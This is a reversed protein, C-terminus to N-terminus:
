RVTIDAPKPHVVAGRIEVLEHVEPVTLHLGEIYHLWILALLIPQWTRKSSHAEAHHDLCLTVLNSPEDPGGQSRYLIHHVQLSDTAGCWRCRGDRKRIMKRLPPPVGGTRRKGNGNGNTYGNNEVIAKKVKREKSRQRVLKLCAPSCISSVGHVMM